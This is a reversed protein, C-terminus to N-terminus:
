KKLIIKKEGQTGPEVWEYNIGFAFSKAMEIIGSNIDPLLSVHPYQYEFPSLLFIFTEFINTLKEKNKSFFLIPIEMLLCKLIEIIEELKFYFILHMKYSYYNYQNLERQKIDYDNESNPIICNNNKYTIYFKGKPPRPVGLILKEIIKEIPIIINNQIGKTMGSVYELIKILLYKEESPFPM